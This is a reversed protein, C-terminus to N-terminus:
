PRTAGAQVEAQELRGIGEDVILLSGDNQVPDTPAPQHPGSRAGTAQARVALLAVDDDGRGPLLRELLQDCLEEVALARLDALATGLGAIGADLGTRRHEVLGDTCRLV